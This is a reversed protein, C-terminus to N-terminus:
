INFAASNPRAGYGNKCKRSALLEDIAIESCYLSVGFLMAEQIAFIQESEFV